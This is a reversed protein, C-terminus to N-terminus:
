KQPFHHTYIYIRKLCCKNNFIFYFYLVELMTSSCIGLNWICRGSLWFVALLCKFLAFITAWQHIHPFRQRRTDWLRRNCPVSPDQYWCKKKILCLLLGLFLNINEYKCVWNGGVMRRETVWLIHKKMYKGIIQHVYVGTWSVGLWLVVFEVM